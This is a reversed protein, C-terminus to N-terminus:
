KKGYLKPSGMPERWLSGGFLVELSFRWLSGGFLVELSFRLNEKLREL